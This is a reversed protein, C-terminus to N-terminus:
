YVLVMTTLIGMAKRLFSVEFAYFLLADLLTYITTLIYLTIRGIGPILAFLTSGFLFSGAAKELFGFVMCFQYACTLLAQRCNWVAAQETNIPTIPKSLQRSLQEEIMQLILLRRKETEQKENTESLRRFEIILESLDKKQYQQVLFVPFTIQEAM